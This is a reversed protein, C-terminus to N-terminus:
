VTGERRNSLYSRFDDKFANDLSIGAEDTSHEEKKEPSTEEGIWNEEIYRELDMLLDQLNQYM